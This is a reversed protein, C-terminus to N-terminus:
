ARECEPVSSGYPRGDHYRLILGCRACLVVPAGGNWRVPGETHGPGGQQDFGWDAVDWPEPEDWHLLDDLVGWVRGFMRSVPGPRSPRRRRRM